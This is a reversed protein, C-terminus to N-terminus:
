ERRGTRLKIRRIAEAAVNSIVYTCLEKQEGQEESLSVRVESHDTLRSELHPIADRTGLQGLSQIMELAAFGDPEQELQRGVTATHKEADVLLLLHAAVARAAAQHSRLEQVLAEEGEPNIEVRRVILCSSSIASILICLSLCRCKRPM